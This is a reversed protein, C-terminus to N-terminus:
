ALTAATTSVAAGGDSDVGTDACSRWSITAWTVVSTVRRSAEEVGPHVWDAGSPTTLSVGITSGGCAGTDVGIAIVDVDTTSFAMEEAWAAIEPSVKITGSEAVAVDM